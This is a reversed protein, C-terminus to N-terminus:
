MVPTGSLSSLYFPGSFIDLSIIASFKGLKLKSVTVWTWSTCPIGYLNVWLPICSLIILIVFIFFLPFINFAVLSFCCIVHLPVGMFSCVLLSHCLVSLTILSFFRYGLICCSALSKNLDSLSSLIKVSLCFSFSKLVM